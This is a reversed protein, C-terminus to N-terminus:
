WPWGAGPHRWAGGAGGVPPYLASRQRWLLSNKHTRHMDDSLSAGRKVCPLVIIYVLEREFCGAPLKESGRLQNTIEDRTWSLCACVVSTGSPLWTEGATPWGTSQSGREFQHALNLPSPLSFTQKETWGCCSASADVTISTRFRSCWRFSATIPRDTKQSSCYSTGMHLGNISSTEAPNCVWDDSTWNAVITFGRILMITALQNIQATIVSVVAILIQGEVQGSRDRRGRWIGDGGRGARWITLTSKEERTGLHQSHRLVLSQDIIVLYISTYLQVVTIHM